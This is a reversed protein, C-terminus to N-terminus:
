KLAAAIRALATEVNERSNFASIRIHGEGCKGFGAGPTCVVQAENLLKDFFRERTPPLVVGINDCLAEKGVRAILSEIKPDCQSLHAIAKEITPGDLVLPPTTDSFEAFAKRPKSRATKERPALLWERVTASAKGERAAQKAARVAMPDGRNRKTTNVPVFEIHEEEDGVEAEAGMKLKMPVRAGRSRACLRVNVYVCVFVFLIVFMCMCASKFTKRENKENEIWKTAHLFWGVGFV